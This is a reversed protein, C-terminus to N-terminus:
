QFCVGWGDDDVPRNVARSIAQYTKKEHAEQAEKKRREAKEAKRHTDYGYIAEYQLQRLEAPTLNISGIKEPGAKASGLPLEDVEEHEDEVKEEYVKKASKPKAKSKAKKAEAAKVRIKALHARQKDSIPRKARAKKPPAQAEADNFVEADPVIEKIKMEVVEDPEDEEPDEDVGESPPLPDEPQENPAPIQQEPMDVDIEADSM